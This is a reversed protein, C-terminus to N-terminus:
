GHVGAPSLGGSEGTGLSAEPFTGWGQGAREQSSKELLDLSFHSM